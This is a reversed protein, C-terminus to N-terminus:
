VSRGRTERDLLVALDRLGEVLGRPAYDLDRAAEAHSFAKDENLRLVQEESIGRRGLIPKTTRAALRALGLPLHLRNVHRGVARGVTILFANFTVPAAGSVDYCRGAAVPRLVAEAVAYAVDAVHVPQLLNRGAGPVVVFPFRGVLRMLRSVNRDGPTGYIMTPRVITYALDSARITDEAATRVVKSPAPLTTFIATTSVFVARGVSSAEAARVIGDAHGFGLSAVNALADYGALAAELTEPRSLDGAHCTVGLAELERTDSSERVFAGVRCGRELLARVVFAGTFGTAGTVLVAPSRRVRSM